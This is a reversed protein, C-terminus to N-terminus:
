DVKYESIRVFEEIWGEKEFDDMMDVVTEEDFQSVFEQVDARVSDKAKEFSSCVNSIAYGCYDEYLETVWVKM